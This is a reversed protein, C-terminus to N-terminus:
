ESYYYSYITTNTQWCFWWIIIYSLLIQISVVFYLNIKLFHFWQLILWSILTTVYFESKIEVEPPLLLLIITRSFQFLVLLLLLGRFYTENIFCLILNFNDDYKCITFIEYFAAKVEIWNFHSDSRDVSFIVKQEFVITGKFGFRRREM